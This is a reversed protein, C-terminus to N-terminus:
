LQLAKLLKYMIYFIKDRRISETTIIGYLDGKPYYPMIMIIERPTEIIKNIKIINKHRIIALIYIERIKRFRSIDTM